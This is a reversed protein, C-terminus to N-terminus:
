DEDRIGKKSLLDLAYDLFAIVNSQTNGVKDNFVLINGGSLLSCLFNRTKVYLVETTAGGYDSGFDVQLLAKQLDLSGTNRDSDESKCWGHTEILLKATKIFQEVGQIEHSRIVKSYPLTNM